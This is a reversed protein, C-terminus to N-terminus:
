RGSSTAPHCARPTRISNPRARLFRQRRLGFLLALVLLGGWEMRGGGGQASGSTASAGPAPQAPESAIDIAVDRSDNAPNTDNGAGSRVQSTFRGSSSARLTFSLSATEAADLNTFECRLTTTGSCFAHGASVDVVALGAPLV